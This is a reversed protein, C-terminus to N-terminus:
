ISTDGNTTGGFENDLRAVAGDPDDPTPEYDRVAKNLTEHDRSIADRERDASSQRMKRIKEFISADKLINNRRQKTRGSIFLLLLAIATFLEWSITGLLDSM